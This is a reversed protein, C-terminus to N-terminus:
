HRHPRRLPFAHLWHRDDEVEWGVALSPQYDGEHDRRVLAEYVSFLIGLRNSSDSAIHPDGISVSSQVVRLVPRGADPSPTECGSLVVLAFAALFRRGYVVTRGRFSSTM